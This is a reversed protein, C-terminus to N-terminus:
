QTSTPAEAGALNRSLTNYQDAVQNYNDILANVQPVLANYSRIDGRKLYINMLQRDNRIRSELQDLQTQLNDFVGQFKHHDETVIQRNKFFGRYYSELSSDLPYYETGLLSHLENDRQGPETLRYTRMEQDLASNHLHAVTMELQENISAKETDTTKAYAAHLMEHAAVVVMEAQLNPDNIKLIYIHNDSTYCGLEVLNSSIPSECHRNFTSRDTDIVPEARYFISKAADTMQAQDALSSIDAPPQYTIQHLRGIALDSLIHLQPLKGLYAAALIAVIVILSLDIVLRM